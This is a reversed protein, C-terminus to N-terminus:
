LISIFSYYTIFSILLEPRGRWSLLHKILMISFATLYEFFIITLSSPSSSLIKTSTESSPGPTGWSFNSSIKLGKKVRSGELFLNFPSLPRPIVIALSITLDWPPSMASEFDKNPPRLTVM